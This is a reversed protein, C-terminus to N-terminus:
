LIATDACQQVNDLVNCLVCFVRHIHVAISRLMSFYVCRLYLTVRPHMRTVAKSMFFCYFNCIRLIQTQTHIGGENGLMCLASHGTQSLM